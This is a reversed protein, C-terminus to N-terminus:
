DLFEVTFKGDNTRLGYALTPFGAAVEIGGFTGRVALTADPAKIQVDNAFQTGTVNFLVRGNEVGIRTRDTGSDNVLQDLTVIGLRDITIIQGAGIKAQVASRLGTRVAGGQPIVTGVEAKQWAAEAAARWQVSGVVAIVQATNAAMPAPQQPAPAPAAAP